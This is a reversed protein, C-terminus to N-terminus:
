TAPKPKAQRLRAVTVRADSTDKVRQIKLKGLPPLNLERESAITEGLVALVADVIPKAVSKKADTRAIVADVLDNKRLSPQTLSAPRAAVVHVGEVQATPVESASATSVGKAKPTAKSSRPKKPATTERPTTTKAM